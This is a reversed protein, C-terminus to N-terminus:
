LNHGQDEERAERRRDESLGDALSGADQLYPAAIAQAKQVGERRFRQMEARGEIFGSSWALALLDGAPYPCDEGPVGDLAAQFGEQWAQPDQRIITM